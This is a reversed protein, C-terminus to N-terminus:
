KGNEKIGFLFAFLSELTKPPKEASEHYAEGWGQIESMEAGIIGKGSGVRNKLMEGDLTYDRYTNHWM